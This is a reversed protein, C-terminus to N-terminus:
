RNYPVYEDECRAIHEQPVYYHKMYTHNGFLRKIDAEDTLIKYFPQESKLESNVVDPWASPDKIM